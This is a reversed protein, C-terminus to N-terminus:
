NNLQSKKFKVRTKNLKLQKEEFKLEVKKLVIARKKRNLNSKLDIQGQNKFRIRKKNFNFVFFKVVDSSFSQYNSKSSIQLSIRFSIFFIIDIDRFNM